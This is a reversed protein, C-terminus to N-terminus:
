ESVVSLAVAPCARVAKMVTDDGDDATESVLVLAGNDDIEFHEPDLSECIGIGSCRERDVVIRM